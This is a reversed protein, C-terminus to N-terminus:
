PVINIKSGPLITGTAHGIAVQTPFFPFLVDTVVDWVTAGARGERAAFASWASLTVVRFVSRTRSFHWSLIM